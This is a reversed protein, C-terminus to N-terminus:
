HRRSSMHFEECIWSTWLQQQLQQMICDIVLSKKGGVLSSNTSTVELIYTVVQLGLYLLVYLFLIYLFPFSVFTM